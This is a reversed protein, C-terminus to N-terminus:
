KKLATILAHVETGSPQSARVMRRFVASVAKKNRIRKKELSSDFIKFLYELEKREVKRNSIGKYLPVFDQKTFEYLILGLAHSINLVPYKKSTGIYMVMDCGEVEEASLGTDDRGILVGIVAKEDLKKLKAASDQLLVLRKFTRNAKEWIGTTGIVLSCEKTAEEISGYVKANKLLHSAHKSFMIAKSGTLKARPKVFYLKSIGFNMSVRAIYGINIQYKPEVIIIKFRM